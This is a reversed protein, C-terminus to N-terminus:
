TGLWCSRCVKMGNPRTLVSGGMQMCSYCVGGSLGPTSLMMSDSEKPTIPLKCYLRAEEIPFVNFARSVRETHISNTQTRALERGAITTLYAYVPVRVEDYPQFAWSRIKNCVHDFAMKADLGRISSRLRAAFYKGVVEEIWFPTVHDGITGPGICVSDGSHICWDSSFAWGRELALIILLNDPQFEFIGTGRRSALVASASHWSPDGEAKLRDVERQESDLSM